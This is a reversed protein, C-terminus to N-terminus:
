PQVFGLLSAVSRRKYKNRSLTDRVRACHFDSGRRRETKDGKERDREERWGREGKKKKRSCVSVCNCLYAYMHVSSAGAIVCMRMYM